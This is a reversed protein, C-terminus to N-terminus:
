SRLTALCGGLAQEILCSQWEYLEVLNASKGFFYALDLGGFEGGLEASVM